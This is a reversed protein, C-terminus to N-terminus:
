DIVSRLSRPAALAQALGLRRYQSPKIKKGASDFVVDWNGAEDPTCQPRQPSPICAYLLYIFQQGAKGAVCDWSTVVADLVAQQPYFSQKFLKGELPLAIQQNGQSLTISQATWMVRKKEPFIFWETTASLSAAGCQISAHIQETKPTDAHASAAHAILLASGIYSCLFKM